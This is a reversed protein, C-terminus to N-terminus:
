CVEDAIEELCGLQDATELLTYRTRSAQAAMLGEKAGARNLDIDLPFYPAGVKRLLEILREPGIM